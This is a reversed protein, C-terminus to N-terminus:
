YRKTLRRTKKRHNRRRRRTGGSFNKMTKGKLTEIIPKAALLAGQDYIDRHIAKTSLLPELRYFPLALRNEKLLLISKITNLQLLMQILGCLTEFNEGIQYTRNMIPIKLSEPRELQTSFWASNCVVISDCKESISVLMNYLETYIPSDDCPQDKFWDLKSGILQTYYFARYVEIPNSQTPLAMGIFVVRIELDFRDYRKENADFETNISKIFANQNEKKTWEPDFCLVYKVYFKLPDKERFDTIYYLLHNTFSGADVGSGGVSLIFQFDSESKGEPDYLDFISLEKEKNKLFDDFTDYYTPLDKCLDPDFESFNWDLPM